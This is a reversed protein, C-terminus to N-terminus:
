IGRIHKVMKKGLEEQAKGRFFAARRALANDVGMRPPINVSEVLVFLPVIKKKGVRQFIIKNGKKSTKVFTNDYDRPSGKTNGLPIALYKSRKAQVTGGTQHIARDGPISLEGSVSGLTKKSYVKVGQYSAFWNRLRGSRVYLTDTTDNRRSSINSQSHQRSLLLSTEKLYAEVEDTLASVARRSRTSAQMRKTIDLLGKAANKWTRSKYRLSISFRGAM